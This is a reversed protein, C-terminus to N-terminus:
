FKHEDEPGRFHRPPHTRRPVSYQVGGLIQQWVPAFHRPPRPLWTCVEELFRFLDM